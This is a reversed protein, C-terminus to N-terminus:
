TTTSRSVPSLDPGASTARVAPHPKALGSMELLRAHAPCVGKLVLQRGDSELRSILLSLAGLGASDLAGIRSIDVLPARMGESSKLILTPFRAAEAGSCDGSVEIQAGHREVILPAGTGPQGELAAQMARLRKFILSLLGTGDSWYRKFLAPEAGIRWLWELGLKAIWSPARPITGAVFDVVAGLHAIVPASIRSQNAEIWSQGKAAGLSVLVFDPRAANITNIMVPASMDPVSGYGPNLAGCGICGGDEANLVACAKEAAGDRGGFFFVRIPAEAGRKQRLRDFLDSGAVREKIPAGLKRALWVIPAGDALSLDADRVQRMAGPDKLARMLWNLNPTVFSLPVRTKVAERVRAEAEDLTVADIPLGFVSWVSRAPISVAALSM